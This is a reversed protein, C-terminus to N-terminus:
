SAFVLRTIRLDRIARFRSRRSSLSRRQKRSPVARAESPESQSCHEALEAKSDSLTTSLAPQTFAVTGPEM